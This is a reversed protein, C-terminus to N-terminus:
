AEEFFFLHVDAWNNSNGKAALTDGANLERLLSLSGSVTRGSTAHAIEDNNLYLRLDSNENNGGYVGVVYGPKQMTYINTRTNGFSRKVDLALIYKNSGGSGHVFAAM